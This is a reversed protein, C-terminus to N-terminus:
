RFLDEGRPRQQAGAGPGDEAMVLHALGSIVAGPVASDKDRVLDATAALEDAVAIATAALERGREDSRGR